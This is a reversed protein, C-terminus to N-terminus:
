FYNDSFNIIKQYNENEFLSNNYTLKSEDFDGWSNIVIIPIGNKELITTFDSKFVVPITKVYLAEWLRHTDCGNGEPCICFKYESLRLINDEPSVNNLWELKNKLSDFCLERKNKNTDINFNFYINKSKNNSNQLIKENNFINLNGHNWMSNAIGIPLFFLKPHEFCLNQAYWKDLNCYYLIHLVESCEIVEVDSNHTVLVFKNKLLHIKDSLENIRHSYCFVYYPNEIETNLNNLNFHKDSQQKIIPNFDFDEQFGFYINCLQQIKEGTVINM